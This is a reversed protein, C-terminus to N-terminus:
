QAMSRAVWQFAPQFGTQELVSIRFLEMPGTHEKMLRDLEMKPIIEETSLAQELDCKNLLVLLPVMLHQIDHILADLEYGAEELREPDAADVVFVIASIAPTSNNDAQEDDDDEQAAADDNDNGNTTNYYDRWLYRVAEHGGLDWCSFKVGAIKIEEHYQPRDTPPVTRIGGNQLSRLLTTKGANDLGLVLLRGTKGAFGLSKWLSDWLWTLSEWVFSSMTPASCQPIVVQFSKAPLFLCWSFSSRSHRSAVVWEWGLGLQCFIISQGNFIRRGVLEAREV